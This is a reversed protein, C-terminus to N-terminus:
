MAHLSCEAVGSLPSRTCTAPASCATTRLMGQDCVVAATDTCVGLQDVFMCDSDASELCRFGTSVSWGCRSDGACSDSVLRHQECHIAAGNLCLGREDIVGCTVDPDAINTVHEAIFSAIAGLQVYDDQGYCSGSGKSLIGFVRVSGDDGRALLPGGSDGRCAGTAGNSSVTVVDTGVNVISAVAFRLEGSSGDVSLGFGAMQVWRDRWDVTLPELHPSIGVPLGESAPVRLLALDTRAEPTAVEESLAETWCLSNPSAYQVVLRERASGVCHRATLVWGDAIFVGSCIEFADSEDHFRKIRVISARQEASLNLLRADVASVTLPAILGCQVPEVDHSCAGSLFVAAVLWTVIAVQV